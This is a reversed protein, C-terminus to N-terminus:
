ERCLYEAFKIDQKEITKKDGHVLGSRKNYLNKIKKYNSEFESRDKSIMLSLHRSFTHSIQNTGANFISELATILTIFKVQPNIVIYSTEFNSLATSYSSDNNIKLELLSLFNGTKDKTVILTDGWNLYISHFVKSTISNDSSEKEFLLPTDHDIDGDFSLRLCRLIHMVRRQFDGFIKQKEQLCLEENEDNDIDFTKNCRLLIIYGSSIKDLIFLHSNILANYFEKSVVENSNLKIKGTPIYSRPLNLICSFNQEFTTFSLKQFQCDQLYKNLELITEDVNRILAFIERM